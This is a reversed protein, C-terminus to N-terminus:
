RPPEVKRCLLPAFVGQNWISVRQGNKVFAGFREGLGYITEGVSLVLENLMFRISDGPRIEDASVGQLADPQTAMISTESAQALTYKYPVDVVAQGKPETGTIPQGDRSFALSYKRSATNIEVALAGSKFKV